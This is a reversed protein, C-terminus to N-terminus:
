AGFWTGFLPIYQGLLYVFVFASGAALAVGVLFGMGLSLTRKAQSVLTVMVIIAPVLGAPRLLLSFLLASGLVYLAPRIAFAGVPDRDGVLSRAVLIGAFLLLLIALVTPFFGPGMQRATGFKYDQAIVLVGVGVVAFLLGTLFDKPRRIADM